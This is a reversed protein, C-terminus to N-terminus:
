PTVVTHWRPAADDASDLNPVLTVNVLAGEEFERPMEFQSVEFASLLGQYTGSQSVDGDALWLVVQEDNLAASQFEAFDPDDPDYVLQMTVEGDKLTAIRLRWGNARRDTVDSLSKSLNVSENRVPGVPNDTVPTTVSDALYTVLSLGSRAGM